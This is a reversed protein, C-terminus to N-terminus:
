KNVLGVIEVLLAATLLRRQMIRAEFIEPLKFAAGIEFIAIYFPHFHIM